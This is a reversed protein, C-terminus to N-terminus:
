PTSGLAFVAVYGVLGLVALAPHWRTRPRTMPLTTLAVLTLLIGPHFELFTAAIAAAFSLFYLVHHLVGFRLWRLQAILGVLMTGAYLLFAARTM